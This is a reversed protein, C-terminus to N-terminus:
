NWHTYKWCYLGESYVTEKKKEAQELQSGERSM